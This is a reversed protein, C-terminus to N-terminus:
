SCVFTSLGQLEIKPNSFNPERQLAQESPHGVVYHRSAHGGLDQPVFSIHPGHQLIPGSLVESSIRRGILTSRKRVTM